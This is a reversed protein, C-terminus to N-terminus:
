RVNDMANMNFPRFMTRIDGQNSSRPSSVKRVMSSNSGWDSSSNSDFSRHHRKGDTGAFKALPEDDDGGHGEKMLWDAVKPPMVSHIMKEKLSKETVLQKKVVLSQGSNMFTDRMRVQTTILIHIGLLHICLHILVNMAVTSPNDIREPVALVLLTEFLISFSMGILLTGYLPLPVVTYVLLLLDLYISYLGAPSIDRCDSNLSTTAFLSLACLVISTVASIKYCHKQYIKSHGFYTICLVAVVVAIAGLCLALFYPWSATQMAPFYIALGVVLVLIYLLGFQFRLTTRPFTSIWYQEELIFSDFKPNWWSPSAREFLLPWRSTSKPLLRIPSLEALSMAITGGDPTKAPKTDSGNRLPPPQQQHDPCLSSKIVPMPIDNAPPQDPKDIFAKAEEKGGEGIGGPDFSGTTASAANGNDVTM